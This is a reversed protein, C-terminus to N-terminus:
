AAEKPQRFAVYFLQQAGEASDFLTATTSIPRENEFDLGEICRLLLVM